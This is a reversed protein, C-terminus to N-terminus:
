LNANSGRMADATSYYYPSVVYADGSYWGWNCEKFPTNCEVPQNNNAGNGENGRLMLKNFAGGWEEEM